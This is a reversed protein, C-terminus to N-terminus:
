NIIGTFIYQLPNIQTSDTKNPVVWPFSDTGM